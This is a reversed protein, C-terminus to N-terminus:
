QEEVSDRTPLPRSLLQYAEQISDLRGMRRASTQGEEADIGLRRRIEELSVAPDELAKILELANM